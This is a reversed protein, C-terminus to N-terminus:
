ESADTRCCTVLPAAGALLLCKKMGAKQMQRHALVPELSRLAALLPYIHPEVHVDRLGVCLWDTTSEDVCAAASCRRM